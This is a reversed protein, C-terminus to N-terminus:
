AATFRVDQNISRGTLGVTAIRAASGTKPVSRSSTVGESTAGRPLRKGITRNNSDRLQPPLPHGVNGFFQGAAPLHTISRHNGEQNGRREERSAGRHRRGRRRRLRDGIRGRRRRRRRRSRNDAPLRRRPLACPDSRRIISWTVEGGGDLPAGTLDSLAYALFARAIEM